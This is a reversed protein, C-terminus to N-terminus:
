DKFGFNKTKHKAIRNSRVKRSAKYESPKLAKILNKRSLNKIDAYTLVKPKEAESRGVRDDNVRPDSGKKHGVFESEFFNRHSRSM